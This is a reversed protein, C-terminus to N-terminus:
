DFYKIKFNLSDKKNILYSNPPLLNWEPIQTNSLPESDITISNDKNINYYLSIPENNKSAFRTAVIQNGDTIIINLKSFCKSDNNLQKENIWNFANLMAIELNQNENNILFHMILYFLHESDTQAKIQTFLKSNITNLLSRRIKEFNHITRNHIFSYKNYSFPHCNNITVDGVTSARVHGLFCNSLIKNSLHKLNTDNWAPRISKFIGPTDDIQQDYWAIGFGDANTGHEGLKAAISQNILSNEPKEILESILISNVGKYCIIRCM